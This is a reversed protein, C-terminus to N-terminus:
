IEKSEYIKKSFVYSLYLLILSFLLYFISFIIDQNIKPFLSESVIQLTAAYLLAIGQYLLVSIFSASLIIADARSSGMYYTMPFVFVGLVIVISICNIIMAFTSVNLHESSTTLRSIVVITTSILTATTLLILYFYYHSQIVKKRSIPLAITFEDWGSIAERKLFEMSPTVLFLMVILTGIMRTYPISLFLLFSAILVGAISYILMSKKVSYYQNLLLGKM